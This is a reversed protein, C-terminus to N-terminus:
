HWHRIAGSQFWGRHFGPKRQHLHAHPGPPHPLRRQAPVRTEEGKEGRLEREVRPRREGRPKLRMARGPPRESARLKRMEGAIQQRIIRREERLRAIEGRSNMREIREINEIRAALPTAATEGAINEDVDMHAAVPLTWLMLVMPILHKM